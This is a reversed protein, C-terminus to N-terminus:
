LSKLEREANRLINAIKVFHAYQTTLRQLDEVLVNCAKAYLEEDSMVADVAVYDRDRQQPTRVSVYARIPPADPAEEVKVCLGRIMYRAQGLRHAHGAKADNWEFCDHLISTSDSAEELVLHEDLTRGSSELREFERGVEDAGLPVHGEFGKGWSYDKQNM